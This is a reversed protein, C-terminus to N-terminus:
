RQTDVVTRLLSLDLSIKHSLIEKANGKYEYVLSPLHIYDYVIM